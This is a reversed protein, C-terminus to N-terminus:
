KEEQIEDYLDTLIHIMLSYERGCQIHFKKGETTPLYTYPLHSRLSDYALEIVKQIKRSRRDQKKLRDEQNSM